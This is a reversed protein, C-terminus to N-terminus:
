SNKRPPPASAGARHDGRELRHDVDHRLFFSNNLDGHIFVALLVCPALLNKLQVDDLGANASRGSKMCKKLLVAIIVLGVLDMLCYLFDGTRDMPVYGRKCLTSCLRATYAVAYLVLMNPSLGEVSKQQLVNALLMAFGICQAAAGVTLIASYHFDSCARMVLLAIAAFVCYSKVVTGMNSDHHQSVLVM